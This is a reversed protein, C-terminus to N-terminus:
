REGDVMVPPSTLILDDNHAVHELYGKPPPNLVDLYLKNLSFDVKREQPYTTSSKKDLIFVAIPFFKIMAGCMEKKQNSFAHFIYSYFPNIMINSYPYYWYYFDVDGPKPENGLIFQRTNQSIYDESIKSSLVEKISLDRYYVCVAFFHAIICRFFKKIDVDIELINGPLHLGSRKFAKVREYVKKYEIDLDSGLLKNNCDACITRCHFGNQMILTEGGISFITRGKNGCSKPPVHDDTLTAYKGCIRCFGEKAGEKLAKVNFNVLARKEQSRIM